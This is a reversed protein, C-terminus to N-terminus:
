FGYVLAITTITDTEKAGVPVDSNNKVTYTIKSALNGNIKMKLSTESETYTNTAGTEILIKEKFTAHPSIIYTYNFGTTFIAENFVKGPAVEKKERYGIGASADLEHSENKIFQEGIGVTISSQYDYGSFKDTEYRIAGFSYAKVGFKYESRATYTTREASKVSNSSAQLAVIAARHTWKKHKKEVGLKANLNESVTNGSTSTYGLEGEGKWENTKKQEVAAVLNPSLLVILMIYKNM